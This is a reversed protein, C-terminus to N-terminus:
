SPIPPPRSADRGCPPWRRSGRGTPPWRTRSMLRSRGSPTCAYADGVAAFGAVVPRGDVVFRNRRDLVGACALVGTLPVGDLWHAQLPCARVVRTFCDEHRLAKLPADGTTTFLTISWTDNDGHLTLVTMSGLPM